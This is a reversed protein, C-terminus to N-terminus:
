QEDLAVDSADIAKPEPGENTGDAVVALDGRTGADPLLVTGGCALPALVGAVVTRPDALPARVAIRAGSGLGREDVIRETAGVLERHTYNRGATEIAMEDGDPGGLPFTPNESWVDREFYAIEPDDPAGGYAVRKSANVSVDALRGVPGVLVRADTV